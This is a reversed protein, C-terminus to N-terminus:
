LSLHLSEIGPCAMVAEFEPTRKEDAPMFGSKLYARRAPENGILISIKAVDFGRQRGRDVVRSMLADVLGRRRFEPATAVHEVEWCGHPNETFASTIAAGRELIGNMEAEDAGYETALAVAIPMYVEFGETLPDYGSLGAAPQGDVEAIMFHSHHCLHGPGTVTLQALYDLIKAEDWGLLVEWLGRELHSRGATLMVWALFEADAPAAARITMSRGTRDTLEDTEIM